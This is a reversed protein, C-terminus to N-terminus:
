ENNNEILNVLGKLREGCLTFLNLKFELEKSMMGRSDSPVNTSLINQLREIDNELKTMSDNLEKLQNIM